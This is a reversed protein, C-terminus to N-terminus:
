TGINRFERTGGGCPKSCHSWKKLAWEYFIADEQVQNSELSSRLRDQIVYKYSVTVKADGHSRVMLVVGYKLPGTTQISEEEETNRYEWAVGKEIAARSEPLEHEDNLFLHGTEQNKMALIHPTGKFEQILLHRAGKPIELIKLYGQKRTSRTFNGKIIKCSSNDGGCVGCRDDQKDSAIQGDCGVHSEESACATPTTM